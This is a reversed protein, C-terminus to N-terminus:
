PGARDGGLVSCCPSDTWGTGRPRPGDGLWNAFQALFDRWFIGGPRTGRWTSSKSDWTLENSVAVEGRLRSASSPARGLITSWRAFDMVACNSASAAARKATDLCRFTEVAGSAEVTM